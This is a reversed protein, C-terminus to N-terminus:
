SLPPSCADRMTVVRLPQKPEFQDAPLRSFDVTVRTSHKAGREKRSPESMTTEKVRGGHGALHLDATRDAACATQGPWTSPEVTRLHAVGTVGGRKLTSGLLLLACITAELSPAIFGTHVVLPNM